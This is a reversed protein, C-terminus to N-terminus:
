LITIDNTAVATCDDVTEIAVATVGKWHAINILLNESQQTCGLLAKKDTDFLGLGAIAYTMDSKSYLIIALLSAVCHNAFECAMADASSEVLIWIDRVITTPANAREKTRAHADADLRHDVHSGLVNDDIAVSPRYAGSVVFPRSVVLM